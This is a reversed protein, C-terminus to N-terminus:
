DRGVEARSVAWFRRICHILFALFLPTSKLFKANLHLALKMVLSSASNTDSSGTSLPQQLVTFHRISMNNHIKM